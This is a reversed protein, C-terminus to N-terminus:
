RRGRDLPRGDGLEQRLLQAQTSPNSPRNQDGVARLHKDLFEV